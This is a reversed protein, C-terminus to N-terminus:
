QLIRLFALMALTAGAECIRPDMFNNKSVRDLASNTHGGTAHRDYLTEHLATVHNRLFKFRLTV